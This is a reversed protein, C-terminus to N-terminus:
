LNAFGTTENLMHIGTISNGHIITSTSKKLVHIYIYVYNGLKWKQHLQNSMYMKNIILLGQKFHLGWLIEPKWFNFKSSTHNRCKTDRTIFITSQRQFLIIFTLEITCIFHWVISLVSSAKQLIEFSFSPSFFSSLFIIVNNTLCSIGFSM